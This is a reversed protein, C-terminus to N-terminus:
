VRLYGNGFAPGNDILLWTSTTIEYDSTSPTPSTDSEGLGTEGSGGFPGPKQTVYKQAGAANYGIAGVTATGVTFTHEGVGAIVCNSGCVAGGDAGILGFDFTITAASASGPGSGILMLAGLIVGGCGVLRPACTKLSQSM